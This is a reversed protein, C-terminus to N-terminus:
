GTDSTEIEVMKPSNSPFDQKGSVSKLVDCITTKGTGNDGFVISFKQLSQEKGDANKCFKDWSFDLFSKYNRIAAIKKIKM